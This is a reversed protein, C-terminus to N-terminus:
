DWLKKWQFMSEGLISSQFLKSLNKDNSQSLKIILGTYIPNKEKERYDCLEIIVDVCSEDMLDICGKTNDSKAM